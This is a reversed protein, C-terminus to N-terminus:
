VDFGHVLLAMAGWAFRSRASAIQRCVARRAGAPRRRRRAASGVWSGEGPSALGLGGPEAERGEAGEGDEDGAVGDAPRGRGLRRAGRGDVPRSAASGDIGGVRAKPKGGAAVPQPREASRAAEAADCGAEPIPGPRWMEAGTSGSIAPPAGPECRVTTGARPVVTV